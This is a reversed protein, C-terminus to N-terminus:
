GCREDAKPGEKVSRRVPQQLPDTSFGLGPIALGRILDGFTHRLARRREGSTAVLSASSTEEKGPNGPNILQFGSRPNLFVFV